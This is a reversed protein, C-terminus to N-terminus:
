YIKWKKGCELCTIFTTMPEDSSRTQVECHITKRKYCRPCKFLDSASEELSERLMKEIKTKEDIIDAWVEPFLKHTDLFALEYPLIENKKVKEILNVNKIYEKSNLNLYINKVKNIYINTFDSNEWLPITQRLDCKNITYNYIGKEIIQITKYPLKIKKLIKLSQQRKIYLDKEPIIIEKNEQKLINSLISLDDINITKINKNKKTTRKKRKNKKLGDDEIELNVLEENDDEGDINSEEYDVAETTDDEADEDADEDAEEVDEDDNLDDDNLDDDNLDDDNLDDDNLEDDNLEDDNLEDDNLDDDNLEDDNLEDDEDEDEKNLDYEDYLNEDNINNNRQVYEIYEDINIKKFYYTQNDLCFAFVKGQIIIKDDTKEIDYTEDVLNINNYSPLYLDYNLETKIKSDLSYMLYITSDNNYEFYAFVIGGKGNNILNSYNTNLYDVASDNKKKSLTAKQKKWNIIEKDNFVEGKKSNFTLANITLSTM